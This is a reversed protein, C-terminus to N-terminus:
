LGQQTPKPDHTPCGDLPEGHTHDDVAFCVEEDPDHFPCGYCNERKKILVWVSEANPNGPRIIVDARQSATDYMQSFFDRSARMTRIDEKFGELHRNYRLCMLRCGAAGFVIIFLCTAIVVSIILDAFNM